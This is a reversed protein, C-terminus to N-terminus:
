SRTKELMLRCVLNVRSQLESTHEESRPGGHDSARRASGPTRAGARVSRVDVARHCGRDGGRPACDGPRSSGLPLLVCCSHLRSRFLTTYPFPTSRIPCHHLSTCFHFVL